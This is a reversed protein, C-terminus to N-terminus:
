DKPQKKIHIKSNIFDTLRYKALIDISMFAAGKIHTLCESEGCFCDFSDSMNLETSPYFFTLEEMIEIDRLALLVMNTTDFFVTPRCSHNTYQLFEPVLTIHENEGTQVTLYTPEILTEGASFPIIIDGAKFRNNARLEKQKSINNYVVSAVSRTTLIKQAGLTSSGHM